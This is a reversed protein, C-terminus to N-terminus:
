NNRKRLSKRDCLEFKEHGRLVYLLQSRPWSIKDYPLGWKCNKKIIALPYRYTFVGLYNKRRITEKFSQQRHRHKWFTNKFFILKWFWFHASMKQANTSNATTLIFARFPLLTFRLFRRFLFVCIWAISLSHFSPSRLLYSWGGCMTRGSFVTSHPVALPSFPLHAPLILLSLPQVKKMQRLIARYFNSTRFARM